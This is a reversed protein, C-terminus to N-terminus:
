LFNQSANRFLLFVLIMEIVRRSYVCIYIFFITLRYLISSIHTCIKESLSKVIDELLVLLALLDFKTNM